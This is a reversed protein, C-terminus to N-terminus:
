RRVIRVLRAKKQPILGGAAVTAQRKTIFVMALGPDWSRVSRRGKGPPGKRVWMEVHCLYDGKKKVRGKRVVWGKTKKM